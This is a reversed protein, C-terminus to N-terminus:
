GDKHIGARRQHVLVVDIKVDGGGASPVCYRQLTSRRHGNMWLKITSSRGYPVKPAGPGESKPVQSILSDSWTAGNMWPKITSLHSVM